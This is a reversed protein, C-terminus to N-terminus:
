ASTEAKMPKQAEGGRIVTVYAEASGGLALGTVTLTSSETNATVVKTKAQSAPKGATNEEVVGIVIRDGALFNGTLQVSGLTKNPTAQTIIGLTKGFAQLVDRTNLNKRFERVAVNFNSRKPESDPIERLFANLRSAYTTADAFETRVGVQSPTRPNAPVAYARLYDIGKWRGMIVSGVKGRGGGLIGNSIRAM